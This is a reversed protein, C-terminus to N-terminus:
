VAALEGPQGSSSQAPSLALLASAKTLTGRRLIVDVIQPDFQSGSCRRLESEAHQISLAPRYPRDSLMADIADSVMIIRAALPIVDGGLGAPYGNGDWREHHHRVARVEDAQLLSLSQLLDAGKSAHTRILDREEPTLDHPKRIIPAYVADIKGIDHLLAAREVRRVIRAPLGLDEAITTALTSVRQSHGSTYPDRTEIAMILVRLLDNNAEQLQLKSIYSYRILYLPLLILIVGKIYLDQYLIAAVLAIPSALFDYLLNAASPGIVRTFIAMFHLNQKSAMFGVVIVSNLVFNVIVMAGFAVINPGGTVQVTGGALLHYTIAAVGFCVVLQATNFVARHAVPKTLFVECFPVIVLVALVLMWPPFSVASAFLPLFLVSSRAAAPRSGEPGAAFVVAMREAILGMAVFVAWGAFSHATPMTPSIGVAVVTTVVAAVAIAWIYAYTRLTM